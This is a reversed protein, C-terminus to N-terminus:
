VSSQLTLFLAGVVNQVLINNVSMVEDISCFGMGSSLLCSFCPVTQGECLYYHVLLNSGWGIKVPYTLFSLM